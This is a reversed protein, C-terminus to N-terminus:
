SLQIKIVVKNQAAKALEKSNFKGDRDLSVKFSKTKDPYKILLSNLARAYVDDNNGFVEATGNQVKNKIRVTVPIDGKLNKWWLNTQKTIVYLIDDREPFYEVPISYRKGSKREKFSLLMFKDSFRSHLPSRLLWKM